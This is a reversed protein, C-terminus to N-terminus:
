KDTRRQQNSQKPHRSSMRPRAPSTPLVPLSLDRWVRTSKRLSCAARLLACLVRRTAEGGSANRPRRPFDVADQIVRKSNM